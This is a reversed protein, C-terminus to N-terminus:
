LGLFSGVKKAAGGVGDGITSGVDEIKSAAEGAAAEAHDKLSSAADSLTHVARVTEEEGFKTAAVIGRRIDDRHDYIMGPVSHHWEYAAAGVVAHAIEKRHDYIINGATWAAVGVGVVAAAALLEPAVTVGLAAAALVGGAGFSGAGVVYRDIAGRAGHYKSGGALTWVGSAMMLPGGARGIVKGALAFRGDGANSIVRELFGPYRLANLDRSALKLFAGDQTLKEPLTSQWRLWANLAALSEQGEVRVVPDVMEKLARLAIIFRAERAVTMSNSGIGYVSRLERIVPSGWGAITFLLARQGLETGDQEAALGAERLLRAIRQLEEVVHAYVDPPMEPLPWGALAAAGAEHRHHQEHLRKGAARLSSPEGVIRM